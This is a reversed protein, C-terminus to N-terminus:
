APCDTGSEAVSAEMRRMMEAESLDEIHTAIGWRHGFPDTVTGYRDGWFADMLPM